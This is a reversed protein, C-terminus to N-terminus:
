YEKSQVRVNRQEKKGFEVFQIVFKQHNHNIELTETKMLFDMM